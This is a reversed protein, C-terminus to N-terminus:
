ENHAGELLSMGLSVLFTPDLEKSATMDVYAKIIDSTTSETAIELRTHTESMARDEYVSEEPVLQQVQQLTMGQVQNIIKIYDWDKWSSKIEALEKISSDSIVLERFRPYRDTLDILRLTKTTTDLVASYKRDSADGFNHQIPGGLYCQKVNETSTREKEETTDIKHYNHFHGLLVITNTGMFKADLNGGEELNVPSLTKPAVATNTTFHGYLVDCAPAEDIVKQLAKPDAIFPIFYCKLGEITLLSPTDVVTLNPLATFPQLAHVTDKLACDHNGILLYVNFQAALMRLKFFVENYVVVPIKGRSHFLDGIIVISTCNNAIADTVLDDFVKLIYMLRTNYGFETPRSFAQHEHAHIDTINLINGM